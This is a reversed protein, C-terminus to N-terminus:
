PDLRQPSKREAKWQQYLRIIKRAQAIRHQHASPQTTNATAEQDFDQADPQVPLASIRQLYAMFEPAAAVLVAQTQSRHYRLVVGQTPNGRRELGQYKSSCM